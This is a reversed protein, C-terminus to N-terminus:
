LDTSLQFGQLHLGVDHITLLVATYNPDTSFCLKEYVTSVVLSQNRCASSLSIFLMQILHDLQESCPCHLVIPDVKFATAFLGNYISLHLWIM